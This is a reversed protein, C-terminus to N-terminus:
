PRRPNGCCASTTSCSAAQTLVTATACNDNAPPAAVSTVCINGSMNASSNGSTRIIQIYYTTAAVSSFTMSGSAGSAVNMCSMQTTAACSTWVAVTASENAGSVTVQLTGGTGTVTYWVDSSETGSLCSPNPTGTEPQGNENNSFSTTTCSTNVTLASAGSCDDSQSWARFNFFSVFLTMLVFGKMLFKYGNMSNNKM